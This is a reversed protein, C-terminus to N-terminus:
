MEQRKGQCSLAITNVPFRILLFHITTFSSSMEYSSAQLVLNFGQTSFLVIGINCREHYIRERISRTGFLLRPSCLDGRRRKDSPAAKQFEGRSGPTGSQKRILM